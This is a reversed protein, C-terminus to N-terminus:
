KCTGISGEACIRADAWTGGIMADTVTAGSFNAGKVGVTTLNVRALNAGALNADTLNADRLDTHTLDAGTLNAGTLDLGGLRMKPKNCGSWDVKPAPTDTCAARTGPATILMLVLAIGALLSARAFVLRNTM